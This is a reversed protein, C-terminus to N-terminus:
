ASASHRWKPSIRGQHIESDDCAVMRYFSDGFRL